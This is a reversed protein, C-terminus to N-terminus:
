LIPTHTIMQEAYHVVVMCYLTSRVRVNVDCFHMDCTCKRWVFLKSFVRVYEGTSQFNVKVKCM